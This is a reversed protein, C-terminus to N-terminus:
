GHAPINRQHAQLRCAYASFLYRVVCLAPVIRFIDAALFQDQQYIFFFMGMIPVMGAFYVLHGMVLVFMPQRLLAVDCEQAMSWLMAMSAVSLVLSIVLVMEFFLFDMAPIALLDLIFSAAIIMAGILFWSTWQPRLARMMALILLSEVLGFFNYVPSNNVERMNSFYGYIELPLALLIVVGLLNLVSGKPRPIRLWFFLAVAMAALMSLASFRIEM